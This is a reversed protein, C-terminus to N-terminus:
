KKADNAATTKDGPKAAPKTGPKPPTKPANPAPKANPNAEPKKDGPKAPAAATSPTGAAPTTPAPPNKAKEAAKAADAEAKLKAAIAAQEAKTRVKLSGNSQRECIDAARWLGDGAVKTVSAYRGSIKIYTDVATDWEQMDEYIQGILYLAKAQLEFKKTNTIAAIESLRKIAARREADTKFAKNSLQGNYIGYDAEALKPSWPYKSRLEEFKKTADPLKGSAELLKGEWFLAIAQGKELERTVAVGDTSYEKQIRPILKGIEDTKKEEFDDILIQDWDEPEFTAVVRTASPPETPRSPDKIEKQVPQPVLAVAQRRLGAAKKPDSDQIFAGTAVLIKAKIDPAKGYDALLKQFYAEGAATAGALDSGQAKVKEKQVAVAKELAESVKEGDPYTKLHRDIARTIEDVCHQWDRKKDKGLLAVNGFSAAQKLWRDMARILADEGYPSEVKKAVEYDVYEYLKQTGADLDSLTVEVKAGPVAGAPPAKASGNFLIEAINVYAYHVNKHDPYKQLYEEMAKKAGAFNKRDREIEFIRFYIDPTSEADPYVEVCRHFAKIAEDPKGAKMYVKGLQYQNIALNTKANESKPTGNEFEKNFASIEDVAKQTNDLGALIQCQRFWSDEAKATGKFKDRVQQFTKFAEQQLAIQGNSLAMAEQVTGKTYLVDMETEPKPNGALIKDCLELAKKFDGKRTAVAILIQQSQTGFQWGAGNNPFDEIGQKVIEEAQEAKDKSVLLNAVILPLGEGAGNGKFSARFTNYTELAKELNQQNVYTECLLSAVSAQADKDKGLLDPQGQLYRILTRAEDFKGLDVFIRAVNVRAALYQDTGSKLQEAKAQEIQIIGEINTKQPMYDPTGPQLRQIMDGWAKIKADQAQRVEEISRVARFADLAANLRSNREKKKKEEDTERSLRSETLRIQGIAFQAENQLGIDNTQQFVLLLTKLAKTEYIDLAEKIEAESPEKGPGPALKDGAQIMYTKGVFLVADGRLPSQANKFVKGLRAVADEYRKVQLCLTGSVFNASDNSKSAPYAAMYDDYAKIAEGYVDNRMKRQPETGNDPLSEGKMAYAKALYLMAQEKVEPLVKPDPVLKKLERIAEDHMKEGHLYALALLFRANRSFPSLEKYQELFKEGAKVAEPWKNQEVLGTLNKFANADSSAAAGPAQALVVPTVSLTALSLAVSTALFRRNRLPNM